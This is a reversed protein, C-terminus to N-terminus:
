TVVDDPIFGLQAKWRLLDTQSQQNTNTRRTAVRILPDYPKSGETLIVSPLTQLEDNSISDVVFYCKVGDFYFLLRETDFRASQTGPRGEIDKECRARDDVANIDMQLVQHISMLSEVQSPNEDYLAEHVIAKFQRGDETTLRCAASVVPFRIACSRGSFAGSMTVFRGTKSIIRWHRTVICQDCGSDAIFIPQSKDPVTVFNNLKNVRRVLRVQNDM